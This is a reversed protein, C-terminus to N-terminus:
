AVNTVNQRPVQEQAETSYPAQNEGYSGQTDYQREGSPSESRTTSAYATHEPVSTSTASAASGPMAGVGLNGSYSQIPEVHLQYSRLDEEADTLVQRAAEM